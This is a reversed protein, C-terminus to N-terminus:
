MSKPPKVVKWAGKVTFGNAQLKKLVGAVLNPVPKRTGSSTHTPLLDRCRNNIEQRDMGGRLLELAIQFGETEIRIGTLEELQLYSMGQIRLKGDRERDLHTFRPKPPDITKKRAVTKKPSSSSPKTVPSTKKKAIGTKKKALTKKVPM